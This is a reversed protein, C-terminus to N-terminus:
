FPSEFVARLNCVLVYVYVYMYMYTYLLAGEGEWYIPRCLKDLINAEYMDGLVSVECTQSSGRKDRLKQYCEELCLSNHGNFPTWMKGPEEYFWRVEHAQLPPIKPRQSGPSPCTSTTSYALSSAASHTPQPQLTLSLIYM